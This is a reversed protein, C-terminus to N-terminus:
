EDPATLKDDRIEVLDSFMGMRSAIEQVGLRDRDRLDLAYAVAWDEGEARVPSDDPSDAWMMLFPDDSESRRIGFVRM